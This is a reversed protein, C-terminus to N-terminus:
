ETKTFEQYVYKLFVKQFVPLYESLTKDFISLFNWKM